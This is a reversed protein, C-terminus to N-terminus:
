GLPYPSGLDDPFNNKIIWRYLSFSGSKINKRFNSGNNLKHDITLFLPINIDCHQCCGGYHNLVEKKAKNRRSKDKNICKECQKYNKKSPLGCQCFRNNDDSLIKYFNNHKIPEGQHPCNGLIAKGYNCNFCLVQLDQTSKSKKYLCDECLSKSKLPNKGCKVCLNNELRQKKLKERASM